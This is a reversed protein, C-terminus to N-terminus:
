ALLDWTDLYLGESLFVWVRLCDMSCFDGINCFCLQNMGHYLFWKSSWHGDVRHSLFASSCSVSGLPDLVMQGWAHKWLKRNIWLRHWVSAGFKLRKWIRCVVKPSHLNIFCCLQLSGFSLCSNDSTHKRLYSLNEDRYFWLPWSLLLRSPLCFFHM